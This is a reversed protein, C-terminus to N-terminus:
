QELGCPDTTTHRKGRAGDLFMLFSCDDRRRIEEIEAVTKGKTVAELITFPAPWLFVRARDVPGYVQTRTRTYDSLFLWAAYWTEGFQLPWHTARSERRMGKVLFPYIEYAGAYALWVGVDGDPHQKATETFRGWADTSTPNHYLSCSKLDGLTGPPLPDWNRAWPYGTWQGHNYYVVDPVFDDYSFVDKAITYMVNLRAARSECGSTPKAGPLMGLEHDFIVTVPVDGLRERVVMMKVKFYRWYDFDRQTIPGCVDAKTAKAYRVAEPDAGFERLSFASHYPSWNVAYHAANLDRYRTLLDFSAWRGSFSACGLADSLAQMFAQDSTVRPGWAWTMVKRDPPPPEYAQLKAIMPDPPPAGLEAWRNQLEQFDELSAALEIYKGVAREGHLDAYLMLATDLATRELEPPPVPQAFATAVMVLAMALTSRTKM